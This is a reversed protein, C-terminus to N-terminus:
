MYEDLSEQSPRGLVENRQVGLINLLRMVCPVAQNNIYYELDLEYDFLKFMKVTVARDSVGSPDNVSCYESREMSDHTVILYDITDGQSIDSGPVSQNERKAAASHPTKSVYEVPEKNMGKSIVLDELQYKGERLDEIKGKALETATRINQNEVLECITEAQAEQAYSCWDGRRVELGKAFIGGDSGKYCYTKKSDTFLAVPMKEEVELEVPYNENCRKVLSGVSEKSDTEKIMVSDTDGAIIEFGMERALDAVQNIYYRGYATTSEACPLAFWRSRQWGVFGFVSNVVRKVGSYRAQLVKKESGSAEKLDEKLRNKSELLERISETVFSEREKSFEHGLEPVVHVEEPPKGSPTVTTEVHAEEGDENEEYVLNYDSVLTDPGIDHYIMIAPYLGSFDLCYVNEHFGEIPEFVKGGKFEVENDYRKRPVLENERSARWIFHNELFEGRDCVTSRQLSTRTLSSLTVLQPVVKKCIEITARSDDKAYDRFREPNNDYVEAMKDPSLHVREDYDMVGFFDAVRELTKSAKIKVGKFEETIQNYDRRVTKYCDVHVRGQITAERDEGYRSYSDRIRPESGDRGVSLDVGLIEARDVIYPWDFDDGNYTAIVSPDYERVEDRFARLMAAEDDDEIVFDEGDDRSVSILDVRDESADPFGEDIKAIEIDFALVRNNNDKATLFESDAYEELRELSQLKKLNGNETEEYEVRYRVNFTLDEDSVYRHSYRIKTEFVDEIGRLKGVKDRMSKIDRTNKVKVRLLRKVEGMMSLKGDTISVVRAREDDAVRQIRKEALNASADHPIEALFYPHFDFDFVVFADNNDDEPAFVLM